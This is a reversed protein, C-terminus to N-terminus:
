YVCEVNEALECRLSEPNFLTDDACRMVNPVGNICQVYQECSGPYSIIYYPIDLTCEIVDTTLPALRKPLEADRSKETVADFKMGEPCSACLAAQGNECLISGSERTNTEEPIVAGSISVALFIVSIIGPFYLLVPMLHDPICKKIVVAM